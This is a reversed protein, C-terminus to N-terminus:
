TEEIRRRTVIARASATEELANKATPAWAAEVVVVVPAEEEVEVVVNGVVVVVLGEDRDTAGSVPRGYGFRRKFFREARVMLISL